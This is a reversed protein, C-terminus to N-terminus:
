APAASVILVITHTNDAIKDNKMFLKMDNSALKIMEVDNILFTLM